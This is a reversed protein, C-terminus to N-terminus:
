ALLLVSFVVFLPFSLLVVILLFVLFWVLHALLFGYCLFVLVIFVHGIYFNVCSICFMLPVLFSTHLRCFFLPFATIVSFCSVLSFFSAFFGLMIFGASPFCAPNLFEYLIYLANFFSFFFYSSSLFVFSAIKFRYGSKKFGFSFFSFDQEGG